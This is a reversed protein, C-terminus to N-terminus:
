FPLTRDAVSEEPVLGSSLARLGQNVVMEM